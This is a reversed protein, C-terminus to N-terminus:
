GSEVSKLTRGDQTKWEKLGNANRGMIVAAALSPSSFLYDEVFLYQDDKKEIIEEKILRSRLNKLSPSFSKVYDDAIRSNQLVLFGDNNQQGIADAGRAAKIFLLNDDNKKNVINRLSEFIKYGLISVMMKANEIFEEMEAIDPESISSLTPVSNNLISFRNADIAINYMKHEVYKIHAKNLNDDKSILVIAEHWFDKERLHQALRKFINEAEGLYAVGKKSNDETKGFLIYVGTGNLEPRDSCDKVLSRPIKYAKGSWNSLECAMRGDSTGDM